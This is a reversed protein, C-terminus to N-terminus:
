MSCIEICKLETRGENFYFRIFYKDMIYKDSPVKNLNNINIALHELITKYYDPFSYDISSFPEGMVERREVSTSRAGLGMFEEKTGLVVKECAYKGSSPDVSFVISADLKLYTLILKGGTESRYSEKGFQETVKDVDAGLYKIYDISDGRFTGSFSQSGLKDFSSGDGQKKGASFNGDYIVAGTTVDYLKGKGDFEGEKFEGTYKIVGTDTDYLNGSGEYLGNVFDGNYIMNGKEYLTGKGGYLGANFQGEYLITEGDTDYNVGEGQRADNSFEGYYVRLGTKPDYEIGKGSKQGVSFSGVYIVKGLDNYLRGSGDYKNNKFQGEYILIGEANYLKGENNYKGSDFNGEYILNGSSDYQVGYGSPNGRDMQGKYVLVGMPDLIKAKGSFNSYKPSNVYITAAWIRGDAWPYAITVGLYGIVGVIVIAKILFKKSYYIGFIKWYDKKSQPPKTLTQMFNQLAQQAKQSLQTGVNQLKYVWATMGMVQSRVTSVVRSFIDTIPNGPM